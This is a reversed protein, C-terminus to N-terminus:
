KKEETKNPTPAEKPPPAPSVPINFRTFLGEYSPSLLPREKSIPPLPNSKKESM